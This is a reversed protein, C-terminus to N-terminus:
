TTSRATSIATTSRRIAGDYGFYLQLRADPATVTADILLTYTTWTSTFTPMDSRLVGYATWQTLDKKLQIGSMMFSTGSTKARFTFSYTKGATVSLLANSATALGIDDCSNGSNTVNYIKYGAPGSDYEGSTTTRAGSAVGAGIAAFTWGAAATASITYGDFSPNPLLDRAVSVTDIYLTRAAPTSAFSFRLSANSVTSTAKILVTFTAFSSTNSITIPLNGSTSGIPSSISTSGNMLEVATLSVSSSAMKARFTVTYYEGNVVSVPSTSLTAAATGKTFNGGAPATDYQATTRTISSGSGTYTWSSADSTFSPNPLAVAADQKFLATDICISQGNPIGHGTTGDAGFDLQLKANSTTSTANFLITYMAPSTTFAPLSASIVTGCSTGTTADKLEAWSLTFGSSAKAWFTLAYNCGSTISLTACSLAIDSATSGNNTTCSIKYGVSPSDYEGSATTRAGSAVASGATAFTWGAPTDSEFSPNPLMEYGSTSVLNAAPVTSWIHGSGTPAPGLDIWDSTNDQEISGLFLPKARTADGYAGYTIPHGSTGSHTTLSERWTDGRQFSVSDDAAFSGYSNVKAVTKWPGNNGTTHGDWADNGASSSVYYPTASLLTREELPECQLMRTLSNRIRRQQTSRNSGLRQARNGRLFTPKWM